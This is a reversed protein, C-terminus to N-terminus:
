SSKQSRMTILGLFIFSTDFIIVKAYLWLFGIPFGLKRVMIKIKVLTKLLFIVSNTITDVDSCIKWHWKRCFFCNLLSNLSMQQDQSMVSSVLTDLTMISFDRPPLNKNFLFQSKPQIQAPKVVKQPRNKWTKM